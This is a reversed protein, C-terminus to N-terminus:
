LIELMEFICEILKKVARTVGDSNINCIIKHWTHCRLDSRSIRFHARM